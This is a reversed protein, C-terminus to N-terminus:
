GDGRCRTRPLPMYLAEARDLLSDMSSNTLSIRLLIWNSPNDLTGCSVGTCVSKRDVTMWVRDVGNRRNTSLMTPVKIVPDNITINAFSAYLCWSTIQFLIFIGELVSGFIYQCFSLASLSQSSFVFLPYSFPLLRLLIVASYQRLPILEEPSAM